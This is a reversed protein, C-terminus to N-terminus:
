HAFQSTESSLVGSIFVQSDSSASMNFWCLLNVISEKINLSKPM